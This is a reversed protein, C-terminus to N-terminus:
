FLVKTLCQPKFPELKQHTNWRLTSLSGTVHRFDSRKQVVLRSGGSDFVAQDCCRDVRNARGQVALEVADRSLQLLKKVESLETFPAPRAHNSLVRPRSKQPIWWSCEAYSGHNEPSKGAIAACN